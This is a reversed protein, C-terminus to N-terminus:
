PYQLKYTKLMENMHEKESVTVKDSDICKKCFYCFNVPKCNNCCVADYCVECGSFPGTKNGCFDCNM